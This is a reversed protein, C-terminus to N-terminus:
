YYTASPVFANEIHQVEAGMIAIIDFRVNMEIRHQLIFSNAALVLRHQKRGDVARLPDNISGPQRTKVEVFVLTNDKTAVIDLEKRGRNHWNRSIIQYGEDLLHQAARDEGQRGTNNHEAM